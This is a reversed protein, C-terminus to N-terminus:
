DFGASTSLIPDAEANAYIKEATAAARQYNLVAQEVLGGLECQVAVQGCVADLDHSYVQTMAQAIRRHLLRRRAASLNAYAVERLLGHTFDYAESGQERVMRRQWLEDLGQVLTDEDRDSAAALVM